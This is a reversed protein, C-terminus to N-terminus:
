VDREIVTVNPNTALAALAQEPLSAAIAPVIRYPHPVNGGARRVTAEESPGPTNRFGILVKVRQNSQAAVTTGAGFWPATVALVAVTVAAVGYRSIRDVYTGMRDGYALPQFPM